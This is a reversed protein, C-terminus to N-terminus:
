VGLKKGVYQLQTTEEAFNFFSGVLESLYFQHDIIVTEPNNVSISYRKLVIEYILIHEYTIQIMEKPNGVWVEVMRYTGKIETSIPNVKIFERPQTKRKIEKEVGKPFRRKIDTSTMERTTSKIRVKKDFNIKRKEEEQLWLNREDSDNFVMEQNDGVEIINEGPVLLIDEQYIKSLKTHNQAGFCIRNTYLAGLVFVIKTGHGSYKEFFFSFDLYTHLVKLTDVVDEFNVAM